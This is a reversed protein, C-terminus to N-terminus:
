KGFLDKFTKQFIKTNKYKCYSIGFFNDIKEKINETGEINQRNNELFIM